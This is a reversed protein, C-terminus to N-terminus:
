WSCRGSSTSTRTAPSTSSSTRWTTALAEQQQLLYETVESTRDDLEAVM